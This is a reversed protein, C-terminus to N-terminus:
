EQRGAGQKIAEEIIEKMGEESPLYSFAPALMLEESSTSSHLLLSQFAKAAKFARSHYSNAIYTRVQERYRLKYAKFYNRLFLNRSSVPLGLYKDMIEQRKKAGKKGPWKHNAETLIAEIGKGWQDILLKWREKEKLVYLRWMHQILTVRRYFSKFSDQVLNNRASARLHQVVAKGGQLRLLPGAVGAFLRFCNLGQSLALDKGKVQRYRRRLLRQIYLAASNRQAQLRIFTKRALFRSMLDATSAAFQLLALWNEECLAKKQRQEQLRRVREEEEMRLRHRNIALMTKQKKVEINDRKRSQATSIRQLHLQTKSSVLTMREPSQPSLIRKNMEVYDKQPFQASNAKRHQLIVGVKLRLEQKLVEDLRLEDLNTASSQSKFQRRRILVEDETKDRGFAVSVVFSADEVAKFGLYYCPFKFKLGPEALVVSDGKHLEDYSNETPEPMTKSVYIRLKGRTRRIRLRLPIARRRVNVFCFQTEGEELTCEFDKSERLQERNSGAARASALKELRDILRKYDRESPGFVTRSSPSVPATLIAPPTPASTLMELRGNQLATLPSMVGKVQFRSATRSFRDLPFPEATGPRSHHLEWVLTARKQELNRRLREETVYGAIATEVSWHSASTMPRIPQKEKNNEM